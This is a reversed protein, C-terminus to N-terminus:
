PQRRRLARGCLKGAVFGVGGVMLTGVINMVAWYNGQWVGDFNRLLASLAIFASLAAVGWVAAGIIYM